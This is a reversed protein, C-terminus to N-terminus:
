PPVTIGGRRWVFRLPDGHSLSPLWSMARVPLRTRPFQLEVCVSRPDRERAALGADAAKVMKVPGIIGGHSIANSECGERGDQTGRFDRDGPLAQIRDVQNPLNLLAGSGGLGGPRTWGSPERPEPEPPPYDHDDDGISALDGRATWDRVFQGPITEPFANSKPHTIRVKIGAPLERVVDGRSEDHLTAAATSVTRRQGVEANHRNRRFSGPQPEQAGNEDDRRRQTKPFSPSFALYPTEALRAPRSLLHALTSPMVAQPSATSGSGSSPLSTSEAPVM